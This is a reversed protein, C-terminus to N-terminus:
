KAFGGTARGLRMVGYGTGGIDDLPRNFFGRGPRKLVAREIHGLGLRSRGLPIALSRSTDSTQGRVAL